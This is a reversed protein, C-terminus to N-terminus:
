TTRRPFDTVNSSPPESRDRVVPSHHRHWRGVIANAEDLELPVVTLRARTEAATM